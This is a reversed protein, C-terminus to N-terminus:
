KVFCAKGAAKLRDCLGQAEARTAFGTVAARYLTVGDKDLAVVRRNKGAMAGPAVGAADSWSKNALEQSSFAGIQVTFAGVTASHPSAPQADRLLSDISKPRAAPPAAGADARADEDPPPPPPPPAVARPEPSEPPPAFVPPAAAAPDDKYISLGAAPDDAAPQPPAASKLNGVPAGLVPPAGAGGKVGHRYLFAFGGVVVILVLLSVILAV